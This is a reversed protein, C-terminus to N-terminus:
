IVHDLWGRRPDSIGDASSRGWGLGTLLDNYYLCYILKIIVSIWSSWHHKNKKWLSNQCAWSYFLDDSKKERVFIHLVPPQLLKDMLCLSIEHLQKHNVLINFHWKHSNWANILIVSTWKSQCDYVVTVM